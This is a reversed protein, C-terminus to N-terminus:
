TGAILSRRELLVVDRWRGNMCGLRSRTGVVRFGAKVHLDISATNEPFIGAQLTWIGEGESDAILGAMLKAGVGCGRASEAVYISVEAVGRYVPRRSVSSLAAWAVIAQESRAILRCAPLHGADWEQWDPVTQQFTANGTAIGQLYISRVTEWHDVTLPEISISREMGLQLFFPPFASAEGGFRELQVM